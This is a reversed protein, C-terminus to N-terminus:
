MVIKITKIEHKSIPAEITREQIPMESTENELLDTERAAELTEAVRIVAKTDKGLTEYFRLIINDSDEAKKIVTLIIDAPQVSVFSYAKPLNGEHNPEIIPIAPYNFEYAKRATSAERFDSRHPYLAYAIDHEGQDSLEAEAEKDVPLGFVGRLGVPNRASRLLTMRIMDNATDFGYKCDNLLSVGYSGDESSHDIWKQGPVEYKAREALTANSSIPNRRTIFGYPVEYTTFDSHVNLPFAVKALRHEAHWDVHLKFIVQPIKHYLIIEQIFMSDARGEQAYNYKVSVRARVPGREVLKVEVPDKLEVYKVGERQQYIFVEWADFVAADM